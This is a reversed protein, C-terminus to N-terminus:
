ATRTSRNDTSCTFQVFGRRVQIDAVMHEPDVNAQVSDADQEYLEARGIVCKLRRLPELLHSISEDLLEEDEGYLVVHWPKLILSPPLKAQLTYQDVNAFVKAGNAWDPQVPWTANRALPSALLARELDQTQRAFTLLLLSAAPAVDDILAEVASARLEDQTQEAESPPIGAAPDNWPHGVLQIVPESKGVTEHSNCEPLYVLGHLFISYSLQLTQLEAHTQTDLIHVMCAAGVALRSGSRSFALSDIDNSPLGRNRNQLLDRRQEFRHPEMKDDMKMTQMNILYLVGEEKGIAFHSGCPSFALSNVNYGCMGLSQLSAGTEPDFFFVSGWDNGAVV